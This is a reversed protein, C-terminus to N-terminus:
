NIVDMNYAYTIRTSNSENKAVGHLLSSPFMVVDGKQGNFFGKEFLTSMNVENNMYIVGSLSGGHTHPNNISGPQIFNVWLDYQDFHHENKRWLVKRNFDLVPRNTLKSVYHEGLHIFYAFTFSPELLSSPVSVQYENMGVNVHNKLFFLPHQKLKTCYSTFEEMEEIIPDPMRGIFLEPIDKHFYFDKFLDDIENRFQNNM